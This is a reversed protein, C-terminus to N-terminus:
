SEFVWQVNTKVKGILEMIPIGEVFLIKGYKEEIHLPVMTKFVSSMDNDVWLKFTNLDKVVKDHSFVSPHWVWFYEPEILTEGNPYLWGQPEVDMPSVIGDIGDLWLRCHSGAYNLLKAITPQSGVKGATEYDVSFTYKTFRQTANGNSIDFHMDLYPKSAAIRM